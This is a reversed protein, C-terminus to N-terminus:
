YSAVLPHCHRCLHACGIYNRIGNYVTLNSMTDVALIHLHTSCIDYFELDSLRVLLFRILINNSQSWSM